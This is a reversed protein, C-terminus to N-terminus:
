MRLFNLRCIYYDKAPKGIVDFLEQAIDAASNSTVIIFIKQKMNEKTPKQIKIGEYEGDKFSDYIGVLHSKPFNNQIYNNIYIANETMGWFAYEIRKDQKWNEGIYQCVEHYYLLSDVDSKNENEFYESLEYYRKSDFTSQIREKAIELMKVKMKDFNPTAPNWDIENFRDPTYLPLFKSLWSFKYYNNELALIVPIELAICLCASHFRSTVVLRAESAYRKILEDAIRESSPDEKIQEQSIFYEHTLCVTDKSINEPIYDKIIAPVDVLFVKTKEKKCSIKPLICSICGAVYAEIGNKRLIDMTREDRCGIPSYKRFYELQKKEVHVHKFSAGIFVPVIYPSLDAFSQKGSNIFMSLNIPLVVYEGKYNRMEQWDIHVIDKEPIGMQAYIYKVAMIQFADGVNVVKKLLGKDDASIGRHELVGYKM